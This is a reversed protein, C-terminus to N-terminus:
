FFNLPRERGSNIDIQEVGVPVRRQEARASESLNERGL